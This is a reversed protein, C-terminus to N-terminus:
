KDDVHLIRIRGMASKSQRVKKVDKAACAITGCSSSSCSGRGVLFFGKIKASSSASLYAFTKVRVGTGDIMSSSSASCTLQRIRVAKAFKIQSTDTGTLVVLPAYASQKFALQLKASKETRICEISASAMGIRHNCVDRSREREQLKQKQKAQYEHVPLGNVFTGDPTVSVSAGPGCVSISNGTFTVTGDLDLGDIVLRGSEDSTVSHYRGSIIGTPKIGVSCNGRVLIERINAHLITKEM